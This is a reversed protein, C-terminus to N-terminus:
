KILAIKRLNEYKNLWVDYHEIFRSAQELLEPPLYHGNDLLIDVIEKYGIWAAYM